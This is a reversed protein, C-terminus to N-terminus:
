CMCTLHRQFFINRVPSYLIPLVWGMSFSLIGLSLIALPPASRLNTLQYHLPSGLCLDTTSILTHDVVYVILVPIVRFLSLLSSNQAIPALRVCSFRLPFSM